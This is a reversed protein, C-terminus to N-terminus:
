VRNVRRWVAAAGFCVVLAAVLVGAALLKREPPVPAHAEGGPTEGEPPLSAGAELVTVEGSMAAGHVICFYGYKGPDEVTYEFSQGDEQLSDTGSDFLSGANAENFDGSTVSHAEGIAKTVTWVVTDGAHVTIQAPEFTRDVISVDVNAALAPAAALGMVLVIPAGLALRRAPISLTM